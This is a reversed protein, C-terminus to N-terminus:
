YDRLTLILTKNKAYLFSSVNYTSRNSVTMHLNMAIFTEGAVEGFITAVALYENMCRFFIGEKMFSCM